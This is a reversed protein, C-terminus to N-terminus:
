DREFIGDPRTSGIEFNLLWVRRIEYHVFYSGQRMEKKLSVM